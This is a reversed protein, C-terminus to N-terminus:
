RDSDRPIEEGSDIDMGMSLGAMDYFDAVEWSGSKEDLVLAKKKKEKTPLYTRIVAPLTDIAKEAMLIDNTKIRIQFDCTQIELDLYVKDSGGTRKHWRNLVIKKVWDFFVRGFQSLFSSGLQELAFVVVALAYPPDEAAPWYTSIHKVEFGAQQLEEFSNEIGPPSAYNTFVKINVSDM